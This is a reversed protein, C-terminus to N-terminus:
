GSEGMLGCGDIENWQRNYFFPGEPGFTLRHYSYPTLLSIFGRLSFDQCTQLMNLNELDFEFCTTQNHESPYVYKKRIHKWEM